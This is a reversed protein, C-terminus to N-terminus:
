AIGILPQSEMGICGSRIHGHGFPECPISGDVVERGCSTAPPWFSRRFDGAPDEDGIGFEVGVHENSLDVALGHFWEDGGPGPAEESGARGAGSM